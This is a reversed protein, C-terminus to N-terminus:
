ERHTFENSSLIVLSLASLRETARAQPSSDLAPADALFLRCREIEAPSPSRAFARQFLERVQESTNGPWQKELSEALTRACSRALSSNLHFLAQHAVTTSARQSVGVSPNAFDFITFVDYVRDRIIPLYVARRHSKFAEEEGPVYENNKWAVLSGGMSLDLLGATQLLSDRLMEAELRQRPYYALLRNDPDTERAQALRERAQPSHKRAELEGAQAYTDSLVILRHLHKVSWGSRIFEMALWDLLEPHTPAEGRLGFNDATKVLGVGFHGQWIRNAVVRATLPNESSALWQALQLRGSQARAVHPAEARAFIKPLGRPTPSAVVNLHSGRVHVPIDVPGAEGVAMVYEEPPPASTQLHSRAAELAELRRRTEDPYEKRPEKPLAAKTANTLARNAEAVLTDIEKQNSKLAAAHAKIANSQELPTVDRENWQSVFDLNKMSQTSKLIGALAYYDETPLPDYKHDHCRACSLTLGLFARSVTDIQEDVVDMVLKPKDQEALMKPGMVLVGTAVLRDVRQAEDAPSPLLDGAVQELIFQDFPKDQNFSRIVYDRYKWALSMAKNEDQGNSDAYRAVDLWHRGWREGYRPSALLREVVRARAEPSADNLFAKALSPEPPLGTLDLAVRRIWTSKSAPPASVLKRRQLEHQIFADIPNAGIPIGGPPQATAPRQFAWHEAANPPPQTANIGKSGAALACAIWLWALRWRLATHFHLRSRSTQDM